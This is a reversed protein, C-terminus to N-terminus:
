IKLPATEYISTDPIPVGTVREIDLLFETFESKNLETTSKKVRTKDGFIEKIGKSLFKGKAWEHIEEIDHGTEESIINLYLWYLRNQELSRSPKRTDLTIYIYKGENDTLYKIFLGHHYKSKFKM